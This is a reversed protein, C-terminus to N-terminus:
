ICLYIATTSRTSQCLIPSWAHPGNWQNSPANQQGSFVLTSSYFLYGESFNPDLALAKEHEALAREHGEDWMYMWGLYSHAAALDPDLKAALEADALAEALADPATNWKFFWAHFKVYSRIALAWSFGPDLALARDFMGHAEANAQPGPERYRIRGRLFWDHAEHSNTYQSQLRHAEGDSLQVSLASVIRGTIEDQLEFVDDLTGDHREAWVHHGSRTDILQASACGTAPRASAGKWCTIFGLERGVQRLDVSKGKYVFSSNRGIVLLGSLKSIDTILDQTLGDAFYEQEPDGSMNDFPLVAISPKDPLTLTAKATAPKITNAAPTWQWVRVPRAINKLKQDGVDVFGVEIRGAINEHATGSI